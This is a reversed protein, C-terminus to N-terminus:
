ESFNLYDLLTEFSIFDSNLLFQISCENFAFMFGSLIIFTLKYYLSNTFVLLFLKFFKKCM